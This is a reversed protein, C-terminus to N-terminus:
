IKLLYKRIAVLFAIFLIIYIKTKLLIKSYWKLIKSSSKLLNIIFILCAKIVDGIKEKTDVWWDWKHLEHLFHIENFPLSQKKNAKNKYLPYITINDISKIDNKRIHTFIDNHYIVYFDDCMFIIKGVISGKELRILKNQLKLIKTLTMSVGNLVIFIVFFIIFLYIFGIWKVLENSNLEGYKKEYISLNNQYIGVNDNKSFQIDEIVYLIVKKDVNVLLYHSDDIEVDTQKKNVAIDINNVKIVINQTTDLQTGINLNSHIIQKGNKYLIFENNKNNQHNGSFVFIFSLCISIVSLLSSLFLVGRLINIKKLKTGSVIHKINSKSYSISFGIIIILITYLCIIVISLKNTENTGNSSSPQFAFIFIFIIIYFLITIFAIVSLIVDKNAPEKIGIAHESIIEKYLIGYIYKLIPFIIAGLTTIIILANRINDM